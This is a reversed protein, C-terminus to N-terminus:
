TSERENEYELIPKKFAECMMECVSKLEEPSDGIAFATETYSLKGEDYIVEHIGYWTEGDDVHKM